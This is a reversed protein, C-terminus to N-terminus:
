TLRFNKAKQVYMYINTKYIFIHLQINNKMYSESTPKNKGELIVSIHHDYASLVSYKM